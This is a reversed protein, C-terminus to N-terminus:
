SLEATVPNSPPRGPTGAELLKGQRVREAWTVKGAKVARYTAYYCREHVGRKTPSDGLPQLCAPCLGNKQCSKLRERAERRVEVWEEILVRVKM